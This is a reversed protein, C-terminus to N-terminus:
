SHSAREACDDLAVQIAERTRAWYKLEALKRAADSLAKDSFATGLASELTEIKHAVERSKETLWPVNQKNDALAEREEMMELLFTEDLPAETPIERLKLLAEARAIASGLTRYAQSASLARASRLRRETPSLEQSKDPHLVKQVERYRADLETRTLSFQEPLGLEAFPNM